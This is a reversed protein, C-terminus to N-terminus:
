QATYARSAPMTPARELAAHIRDALAGFDPDYTCVVIGAHAPRTGHLRIFHRRNFTLVVRQDGIAFALVDVDPTAANAQGSEHTTLVDHGLERLADISSLPFNEDAYCRAM